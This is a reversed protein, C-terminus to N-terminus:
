SPPGGPEQPEQKVREITPSEWPGTVRYRYNVLKAIQTKLLKQVVFIVAGAAPNAIAGLLSLNAGVQPAIVIEMDYDEAALGARGHVDILAAPGIVYFGESLLDGSNLAGKATIRDFALGKAFVDTFDLTLRRMLAEVNLLGFLRGSGPEVSLFRGKAASFTYEGNLKDFAFAGPGGAWHVSAQLEATGDAIQESLDLADMAKGLDDSHMDIDLETQTLDGSHRWMGSATIRLQAQQAHFTAIRWGDTHPEAAFRLTGLSMNGYHFSDATLTVYPLREPTGTLAPVTSDLRPWRLRDLEFEYRPGQADFDVRAHGHVANGALEARWVRGDESGARLEVPGFDRRLWTLSNTNISVRRLTDVLTNRDAGVAPGPRWLVDLWADADLAAGSADVQLHDEGPLQPTGPGLVIGGRVFQWDDNDTQFALDAQLTDGMSFQVRRDRRGAFHVDVSGPAPQDAAKTLPPPLEVEVGLLESTVALQVDSRDVTLRATWETEGSFPEVLRDGLITRLMKVDARGRGDVAFVPPQRPQLTSVALTAPGDMVHATMGQASVTQETFRVTGRIAEVALGNPWQIRGNATEYRGKVRTQKLKSLPLEIDLHLEGQGAGTLEPATPRAGKHLPGERLFAVVDSVPTETMTRVTLMRSRDYLNEGRATAQRITSRMIDGRQAIVDLATNHFAVQADLNSLVPWRKAFDLTGGTLNFRADFEGGGDAFPFRNVAGRWRIRGGSLRGAKLSRTLWAATKPPTQIPLYDPVRAVDARPLEARLDVVPSGGTIVVTGDIGAFELDRNHAHLKRVTITSEAGVKSWSLEGTLDMTLSRTYWRPLVFTVPGGSLSAWVNDPEISLRASLGTVGPWPDVAEISLDALAMDLRWGTPETLAGYVTLSVDRARGGPDAERIRQRLTEDAVLLDAARAVTELELEATSMRTGAQERVVEVRNWALPTGEVTMAPNSVTLRWGPAQRLWSLELELKEMRRLRDDQRVFVDADSLSIRAMSQNLTGRDWTTSVRADLEGGVLQPIREAILLPINGMNVGQLSLDVRGGWDSESLAGRLKASVSLRRCVPALCRATGAFQHVDGNNVFHMEIESLRMAAGPDREDRWILTGDVLRIERQHFLWHAAALRQGPPGPEAIIDGVRVGGERLRTIELTPSILSFREFLLDGTVLSRPSVQFEIGGLRLSTQTGDQRRVRLGNARFVPSLGEWRTDLQLISVPRGIKETLYSEIRLRHEPLNPWWVWLFLAAAALLLVGTGIAYLVYRALRLTIHIM